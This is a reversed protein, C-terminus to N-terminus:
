QARPKLARYYQQMVVLDDSLPGSLSEEPTGIGVPADALIRALLDRPNGLTVSGQTGDKYALRLMTGILDASKEGTMAYRAELQATKFEAWPHDAGADAKLKDISKQISGVYNQRREEYREDIAKREVALADKLKDAFQKEEESLDNRVKQLEEEFEKIKAQRDAILKENQAMRARVADDGPGSGRALQQKDYNVAGQTMMVQNQHRNIQRQIDSALRKTQDLTRGNSLLASKELRSRVRQEIQNWQGEKVANEVDFIQRYQPNKEDLRAETTKIADEYHKEVIDEADDFHKLRCTYSVIRRGKDDEESTWKGDVCYRYNDLVQGTKAAKDLAYPMSRVFDVSADDGCGTLLLACAAALAAALARLHNTCLTM